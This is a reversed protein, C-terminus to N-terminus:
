PLGVGAIEAGCVQCRGNKVQNQRIHFGIREILLNGCQFCWTNEGAEGPINGVYVYRLGAELGISRARQLTTATTRPRDTLRYAPHYASIHWPVDPSLSVIFQALQKLEEDSDNYTPIILTTIELWIGLERCLQLTELVPKLRAGCITRYFDDSFSKLDVNAAALYPQIHRLAAASIYGNTVFVNHIGQEAALVACEYAYEYFVTPETYTYAISTCGSQKAARVIEHATVADGAIRGYDAVMQSISYNQCHRCQFNCGVTAISYALSGPYFHFLPKKEIPDVAQSICQEYVLSFLTGERNERVGCIGTKGKQIVCGHRCLGCQVAASPKKQYFLAEIM